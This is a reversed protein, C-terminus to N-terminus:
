SNIGSLIVNIFEQLIKETGRRLILAMIKSCGLVRLAARLLYQGYGGIDGSSSFVTSLATIGTLSIERGRGTRHFMMLVISNSKLSTQSRVASFAHGELM